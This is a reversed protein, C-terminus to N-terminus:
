PAVAETIGLLSPRARLLGLCQKYAQDLQNDLSMLKRAQAIRVDADQTLATDEIGDEILGKTKSSSTEPTQLNALPEVILEDMLSALKESKSDDFQEIVDPDVGWEEAGPLRHVCRGQPLYYYDTTLKLTAGSDPLRIIRQVSGKGWSRTGVIVARHHDQLAGAVIESASASGQDIMVVLHFRRYTNEAHAHEAQEPSKAGRTRVVVGGDIMRDVTEVAASMLGGPNSRLDLVLAQMNQTLLTEIARDLEAVTEGTFQSIRLCGVGHEADLIYDWGGDVTNRRWGRVTPVYIRRRTITLTEQTGDTHLVVLTVDTEAPGTLEKVARTSSWGKTSKGNVELIRDGPRIGAEYAPSNEFPSIVVLYGDQIDLGVGVGEYNGSTRKQFDEVEQAPIYESYPDLEHLMGNIAGAVLDQEKVDEVYYRHVLDCVDVLPDFLAHDAAQAVM